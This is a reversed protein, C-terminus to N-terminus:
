RPVAQGHRTNRVRRNLIRVAPGGHPPGYERAVAETAPGAAFGSTQLAIVNDRDELAAIPPADLVTLRKASPTMDRLGSDFSDLRIGLAVCPPPDGAIQQLLAM